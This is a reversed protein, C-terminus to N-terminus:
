INKSDLIKGKYITKLNIEIKLIKKMNKILSLDKDTVISIATGAEGTRSTRGVRHLYEKTDSPLDLNFIHSVNKIDLGRAAIDSAM